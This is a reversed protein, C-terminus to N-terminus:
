PKGREVTFTFRREDFAAPGDRFTREIFVAEGSRHLILVTASRTGYVPSRIFTASLIREWEMGIGTDPLLSDDYRSTDGLMGFLAEPDPESGDRLIKELTEKGRVVKPWPTDLLHNSLGHIGPTVPAWGEGFSSFCEMEGGNMALLNFGNYLAADRRVRERFSPFDEKGTLFTRVLDGRSPAGNRFHRPARYNTIAALRGDRRIGIWTGGGLLDKGALIDPAEEWFRAAASPREYFEDRNAALVLPCSAHHRYAFLILCV